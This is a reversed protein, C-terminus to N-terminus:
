YVSVPTRVMFYRSRALLSHLSLLLNMNQGKSEMMNWTALHILIGWSNLQAWYKDMNGLTLVDDAIIIIIIVAFEKLNIIVTVASGDSNNQCSHHRRQISIIKCLLSHVAMICMFQRATSKSKKLDQHMLLDRLMGSSYTPRMVTMVSLETIKSSHIFDPRTIGQWVFHNTFISYSNFYRPHNLTQQMWTHEPLDLNLM